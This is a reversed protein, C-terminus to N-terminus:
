STLPSSFAMSRGPPASNERSASTATMPVTRAKARMAEASLRNLAAAM